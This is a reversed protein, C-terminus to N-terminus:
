APGYVVTQVVGGESPVELLVRTTAPRFDFPPATLVVASAPVAGVRIGHGTPKDLNPQFDRTGPLHETLVVHRYQGLKAVVRSIQENSLHQLVQRIFVVQGGPLPAATIDLHRFDVNMAAYRTRNSAVLAPVVDCAVYSGCLPRLQRGVNFDGCGLDVVDPPQPFGALWEGVARVYGTVVAEDHSGVGSFFPFEPTGGWLGKEYIHSFVQEPTKDKYLRDMVRQRRRANLHELRWQLAKPLLDFLPM